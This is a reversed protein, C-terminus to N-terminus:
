GLQVKLFCETTAPTTRMRDRWDIWQIRREAISRRPGRWSEREESEGQDDVIKGNGELLNEVEDEHADALRSELETLFGIGESAADGEKPVPVESLLQWTSGNSLFSMKNPVRSSLITQPIAM